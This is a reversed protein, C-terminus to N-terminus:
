GMLLKKHWNLEFIDDQYYGIFPCTHLQCVATDVCWMTFKIVGANMINM